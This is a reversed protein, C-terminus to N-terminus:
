RSMLNKYVTIVFLAVLFAGVFAEVGAFLRTFNSVPTLDGYGLTTFTVTSYYAMLAYTRIIDMFSSEATIRYIVDGDTVGFFSYLIANALIVFISFLFINGVKEGYGCSIDALKMFFRQYSIIPYQKRQVIMERYFFVGVSKSDGVNDFHTKLNLYIEEAEKYKERAESKKGEIWLKNGEVEQKILTDEGWKINGLRANEFNTGLINADRMDSFRMNAFSCNAKFLDAGKLSIGFLHGKKLKAKSFNANEFNTETLWVDLLDANKLQYGECNPDIKVKQELREKVDSRTKDANKDHWFCYSSGANVEEPCRSGDFRVYECQQAM